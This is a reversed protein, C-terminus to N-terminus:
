KYCLWVWQNIEAAVADPVAIQKKAAQVLYSAEGCRIREALYQVSHILAEEKNEYPSDLFSLLVQQMQPTDGKERWYDFDYLKAYFLWEQSPATNQFHVMLTHTNRWNHLAAVLGSLYVIFFVLTISALSVSLAPISVISILRKAVFEGGSRLAFAFVVTAIIALGYLYRDALNYHPMFLGAASICFAIHCLLALLLGKNGDAWRRIGIFVIVSLLLSGAILPLSFLGAVDYGKYANSAQQPLWAHLLAFDSTFGLLKALEASVLEISLQPPMRARSYATMVIFTVLSGVMFFIANRRAFHIASLRAKTNPSAQDGLLYDLALFVFCLMATQLHALISFSYLALSIWVGVRRAPSTCSGIFVYIALLALTTSLAYPIAAVWGIVEARLVGGGWLGAATAAALPELLPWSLNHGRMPLLAFLRVVILYVLFTNLLHLIVGAAHFPMPAIGFVDALAGFFLLSVPTFLLTANTNTLWAIFAGPSDSRSRLEHIIWKDDMLLFDYEMVGAITTTAALAIVLLIGAGYPLFLKGLLDKRM